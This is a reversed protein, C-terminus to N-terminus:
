KVFPDIFGAIFQTAPDAQMLKSGLQELHAGQQLKAVRENYTIEGLSALMLAKFVFFGAALALLGKLPFGRRVHRKPKVVILGDGRMKTTYGNAMAAHKRGLGNLRKRFHQQTEVM